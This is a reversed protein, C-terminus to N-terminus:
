TGHNMEKQIPEKYSACGQCGAAEKMTRSRVCKGFVECNFVKLLVKGM